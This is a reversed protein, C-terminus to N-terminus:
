RKRPIQLNFQLYFCDFQESFPEVFEDAIFEDMLDFGIERYVLVIWFFM